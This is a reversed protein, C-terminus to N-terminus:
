DYENLEEDTMLRTPEGPIAIVGNLYKKHFGFLIKRDRFVAIRHSGDSPCHRFYAVWSGSDETLTGSGYDFREDWEEVPTQLLRTAVRDVSAQWEKDTENM